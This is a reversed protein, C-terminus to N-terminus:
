EVVVELVKPELVKKSVNRIPQRMKILRKPVGPVSGRVIIYDGKVLGFHKFGGSPNISNQGDKETNSMVLIRKNYETRQHFGRQGQRAVTYMVVAPSIPGLTGVARVSKRSKHQKRKIGFRTVPGEIGKGRTIGFVDINQGVQFIDSVKVERGLVSKVYDYQSKADKGSVAMEFVFPTKQSLGISNPSVAVIAMIASASGLMGEAKAFAEDSSKADFKRSLEKPLDKAYVDFIAHQGYIDKKYGRIGIVRIPPTVIVTAPNLLQKGFNPTKERDDITLVHICGAKFGAFGLLSSKEAALQPWTRVRAELSRARARPRFAVSGRRPASYKRHGM